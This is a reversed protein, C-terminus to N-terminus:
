QGRYGAERQHRIAVVRILQIAKAYEYLAVYGTKGQSIVLERLTSAGGIPRGIEPHQDLVSIASHIRDIHEVASTPDRETVYVLIRELDGLAGEDFVIV